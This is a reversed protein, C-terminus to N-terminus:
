RTTCINHGLTVVKSKTVAPTMYQHVQDGGFLAYLSTLWPCSGMQWRM